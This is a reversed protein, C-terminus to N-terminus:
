WKAVQRYSISWDDTVPVICDMANLGVNPRDCLADGEREVRLFDIYTVAMPAEIQLFRFITGGLVGSGKCIGAAKVLAAYKEKTEGELMSVGGDAVLTAELGVMSGLRVSCSISAIEADAELADALTDLADLNSILFDEADSQLPFFPDPKDTCASLSIALM